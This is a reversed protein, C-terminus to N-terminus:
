PRGSERGERQEQEKRCDHAQRQSPALVGTAAEALHAECRAPQCSALTTWMITSM